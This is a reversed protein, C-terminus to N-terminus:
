NLRQRQQHAQAIAITPPELFPPNGQVNVREVLVLPVFCGVFYRVVGSRDFAGIV